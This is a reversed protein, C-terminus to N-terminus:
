EPLMARVVVPEPLDPGTQTFSSWTALANVRCQRDESSIMYVSSLLASAQMPVVAETPCENGDSIPTIELHFEVTAGCEDVTGAVLTSFEDEVDEFVGDSQQSAAISGDDRRCIIGALQPAQEDITTSVIAIGTEELSFAIVDSSVRLDVFFISYSEGANTPSWCSCLAALATACTAQRWRFSCM